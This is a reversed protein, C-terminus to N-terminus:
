HIKRQQKPVKPFISIGIGGINDDSESVECLHKRVHTYSSTYPKGQHGERGGSRGWGHGKLKTVYKWLPTLSTKIRGKNGGEYEDGELCDKPEYLPDNDTHGSDEEEKEHRNEVLVTIIIISYVFKNIV